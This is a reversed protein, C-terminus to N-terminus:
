GKVEVFPGVDRQVDLDCFGEPFGVSLSLREMHGLLVPELIAVEVGHVAAILGYRANAVLDEKLRQELEGVAPPGHVRQPM